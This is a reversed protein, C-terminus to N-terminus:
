EVSPMSSGEWVWPRFTIEAERCPRANAGHVSVPDYEENLPQAVNGDAYGGLVYMKGNVEGVAVESRSHILGAKTIWAGMGPGASYPDTSSFNGSWGTVPNGPRPKSDSTISQAIAAVSSLNAGILTAFAAAAFVNHPNIYRSM